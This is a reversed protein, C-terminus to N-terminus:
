ARFRARVGVEVRMLAGVESRAEVESSAGWGLGSGPSEEDGVGVM